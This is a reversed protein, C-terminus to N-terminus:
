YVSMASHILTHIVLYPNARSSPRRDEIYGCKDKHWNLPIRVSTNRSGYGYTFCGYSSTEHKGTMRKENGVGYNCMHMNHNQKLIELFKQLFHEGTDPSRLQKVSFNTHMGSGNIDPFPKPDWEIYVNYREAVLSLLYRSMWLDDAIKLADKGFIQYEWQGCAVEANTGVIPINVAHCLKVHEEIIQRGFCHKSGVSCYFNGQTPQSVGKVGLPQGTDANMLFFEVELGFWPELDKHANTNNYLETLLERKNDSHATGDSHRVECLVYLTNNEHNYTRVPHLYLESKETEAQGTSSGDFNWIQVLMPKNTETPSSVYKVKSRLNGNHDIWVYEQRMM